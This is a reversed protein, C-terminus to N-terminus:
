EDQSSNSRYHQSSQVGVEESGTVNARVEVPLLDSRRM